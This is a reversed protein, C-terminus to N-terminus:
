VSHDVLIQVSSIANNRERSGKSLARSLKQICEADNGFQFIYTVTAFVAGPDSTLIEGEFGESAARETKYKADIGKLYNLLLPGDRKPTLFAICINLIIICLTNYM